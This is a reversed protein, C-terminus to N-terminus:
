SLLLYVRSLGSFIKDTGKQEKASCPHGKNKNDFHVNAEIVLCLSSTWCSSKLFLEAPFMNYLNHLRWMHRLLLNNNWKNMESVCCPQLSKPFYLAAPVAWQPEDAENRINQQASAKFSGTYISKIRLTPPFWTKYWAHTGNWQIELRVAGHLPEAAKQSCWSSFLLAPFLWARKNHPIQWSEQWSM